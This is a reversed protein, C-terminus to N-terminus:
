CWLSLRSTNTLRTLKTPVRRNLKESENPILVMRNPPRGATDGGINKIMLFRGDSGVDYTQGYAWTGSSTDVQSVTPKPRGAGVAGCCRYAARM